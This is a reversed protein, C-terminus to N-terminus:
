CAVGESYSYSTASTARGCMGTDVTTSTAHWSYFTSGTSLRYKLGSDVTAPFKSGTSYSEMGAQANSTALVLGPISGPSKQVGDIEIVAPMPADAGSIYRIM